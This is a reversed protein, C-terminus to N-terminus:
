HALLADNSVRTAARVAEEVEEMLLDLRAKNLSVDLVVTGDDLRGAIFVANAFLIDTPTLQCRYGCLTRKSGITSWDSELIRSASVNSIMLDDEAEPHTPFMIIPAKVCTYASIIHEKTLAMRSAALLSALHQLTFAQVDKASLLPYPIPCFANQVYTMVPDSPSDSTNLFNRFAAVNTCHVITDPPIGTSYVTKFIWAVLIDGSTVNDVQDPSDKVSSVVHQFASKPILVTRREAGGWWKEKLHYAVLKLYGPVGLHSYGKYEVLKKGEAERQALEQELVDILPSTNPGESPPPPPAWEKGQLEAIVAKMVMAAGIGDFIGHSRAFGIATYNVEQGSNDVEASPFSTLHWCTLPHSAAEWNKYQRPTSPDVFLSPPLSASLRPIPLPVYSSLPNPATATTVAFTPYNEPIPGLPVRIYWKIEDREQRSIVRGALFRWKETVRRLARALANADIVGEVLWGTVFTTRELMIDFVTLPVVAHPEPASAMTITPFPDLVIELKTNASRRSPADFRTSHSPSSCSLRQLSTPHETHILVQALSPIRNPSGGLISFGRVNRYKHSDSVRFHM